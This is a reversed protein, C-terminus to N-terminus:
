RNQSNRWPSYSRSVLAGFHNMCPSNAHLRCVTGYRAIRFEAHGAIEGKQATGRMGLFQHVPCLFQAEGANGDGVAIRQGANHAAMHRCLLGADPEGGAAPQHEHISSGVNQDPWLVALGISIEAFQETQALAARGLAFAM